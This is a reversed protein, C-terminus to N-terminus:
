GRAGTTALGRSRWNVPQQLPDGDVVLHHGTMGVGWETTAVLVATAATGAGDGSGEGLGCNSEGVQASRGSKTGGARRRCLRESFAMAPEDPRAPCPCWASPRAAPLGVVAVAAPQAM